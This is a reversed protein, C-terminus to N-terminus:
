WRDEKMGLAYGIGSTAAHLVFGVLLTVLLIHLTPQFFPITCVVGGLIYDIQDFPLFRGGPRVGSRRKLASRFLDGLIAGLGAFFGFWLSMQKYPFFGLAAAWATESVLRQWWFAVFGFLVAALIGRVTKHSGFFGRGGLFRDVPVALFAAHDRVLVPAINAFGMPLLYWACQIVLYGTEWM